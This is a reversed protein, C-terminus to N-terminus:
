KAISAEQKKAAEQKQCAMRRIGYGPAGWDFDAKSM